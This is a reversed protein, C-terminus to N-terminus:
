GLQRRANKPLKPLIQCTLPPTALGTMELTNYELEYIDAFRKETVKSQKPDFGLAVVFADTQVMQKGNAPMVELAFVKHQNTNPIPLIQFHYNQDHDPFFEAARLAKKIGLAINRVASVMSLELLPLLPLKPHQSIGPEPKGPNKEDKEEVSVRYTPLWDSQIKNSIRKNLEAVPLETLEKWFESLTRSALDHHLWNLFIWSSSGRFNRARGALKLIEHNQDNQEEAPHRRKKSRRNLGSFQLHFYNFDDDQISPVSPKFIVIGGSAAQQDFNPHRLNLAHVSNYRGTLGTTNGGRLSVRVYHFERLKSMQNKVQRITLGTRQALDSFGVNRIIGGADAEELLAIMLIRQPITLQHPLKSTSHSNRTLLGNVKHQHLHPQRKLAFSCIEPEKIKVQYRVKNVETPKTAQVELIGLSRLEKVVGYFRSKPLEVANIIETVQDVWPMQNGYRTVFKLLFFKAFPSCPVLLFRLLM